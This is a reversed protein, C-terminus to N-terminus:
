ASNYRLAIISGHAEEKNSGKERKQPWRVASENALPNQIRKTVIANVSMHGTLCVSVNFQYVSKWTDSIYTWESLSLYQKSPCVKVYSQRIDEWAFQCMTCISQSERIVSTHGTLCVSMDFLYVSESTDSVYTWKFLSVYRVSKFLSECIVSTHRSLCVSINVLHVSKWIDSVNTGVFWSM